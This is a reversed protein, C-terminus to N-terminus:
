QSSLCRQYEERNEFVVRIRAYNELQVLYDTLSQVSHSSPGSHKLEYDLLSLAQERLSEVEPPYYRQIEM